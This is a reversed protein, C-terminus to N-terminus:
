LLGWHELKVTCDSLKIEFTGLLYIISHLVPSAALFILVLSCWPPLWFMFVLPCWAPLWFIPVLSVQRDCHKVVICWLACGKPLNYYTPLNYNTEKSFLILEYLLVCDCSKFPNLLYKWSISQNNM